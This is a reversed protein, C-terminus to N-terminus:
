LLLDGRKFTTPPYQRLLLDPPIPARGSMQKMFFAVGRAASEDRLDRSWQPDMPRADPGSEGGCIVWGPLESLNCLTIPGLLPEASIFKVAAPVTRLVNWRQDFFHQNEASVGLWVNPYGSGWDPPVMKAINQPRKTLLLWDLATTNRILDFLDARWPAPVANDFVDALSACFVRGRTWGCRNAWHLPQKWYGPTTRKRKRHPGWEAWGFENALPRAYCNDCGPSVEQCGIWPNFSHDAWEIKTSEGM